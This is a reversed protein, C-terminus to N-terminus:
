TTGFGYSRREDESCLNFYKQHIRVVRQGVHIHNRCQKRKSRFSVLTDAHRLQCLVTRVNNVYTISELVAAPHRPPSLNNFLTMKIKIQACFTIEYSQLIM